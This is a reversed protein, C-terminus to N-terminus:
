PLTLHTYSVAVVAVVLAPVDVARHVRLREDDDRHIAMQEAHRVASGRADVRGDLEAVLVRLVERLDREKRLPVAAVPAVLAVLPVAAGSRGNCADAPDPPAPALPERPSCCPPVSCSRCSPSPSALM